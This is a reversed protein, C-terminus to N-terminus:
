PSLPKFYKELIKDRKFKKINQNVQRYFKPYHIRNIWRGRWRQRFPPKQFHALEHAIVSLIASIKKPRRRKATYVDVTVTRTKLNIHGLRYAKQTNKIPHLRNLMTRFRFGTLKLLECARVFVLELEEQRSM